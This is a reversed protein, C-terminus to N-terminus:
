DATVLAVLIRAALPGIYLKAAPLSDRARLGGRIGDVDLVHSRILEVLDRVIGVVVGVGVGVVPVVGVVVRALSSALPGPHAAHTSVLVAIM